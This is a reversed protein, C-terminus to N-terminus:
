AMSRKSMTGSPSCREVKKVEFFVRWCGRDRRNLRVQLAVLGDGFRADIVKLVLYAGRRKKVIEEFLGFPVIGSVDLLESLVLTIHHHAKQQLGAFGQEIMQDHHVVLIDDIDGPLSSVGIFFFCRSNRLRWFLAISTMSSM